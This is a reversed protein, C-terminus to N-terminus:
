CMKASYVSSCTMYLRSRFRIEKFFFINRTFFFRLLLKGKSVKDTVKKGHFNPFFTAFNFTWQLKRYMHFPSLYPICKNCVMAFIYHKGTHRCTCLEASKASFFTSCTQETRLVKQMTLYYFPL